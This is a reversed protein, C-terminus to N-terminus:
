PGPLIVARVRARGSATRIRLYLASAWELLETAEIAGTVDGGYAITGNGTASSTIHIRTSTCDNEPM